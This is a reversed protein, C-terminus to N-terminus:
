SVLFDERLWRGIFFGFRHFFFPVAINCVFPAKIPGNALHIGVVLCAALFSANTLKNSLASSISIVM